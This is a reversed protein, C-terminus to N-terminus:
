NGSAILKEAKRDMKIVKSNNRYDDWSDLSLYPEAEIIDKVKSHQQEKFLEIMKILDNRDLLKVGNFSALKECSPTYKSSTIVISKKARYFRMSSYVEQVASLGVPNSIAYRKAQIVNRYGERDTFVLDTGFDGSDQTKYADGYGLCLFLRFLYMEFDKGDEMRDIENISIKYPDIDQTVKNRDQVRPKKFLRLLVLAILVVIVCVIVFTSM